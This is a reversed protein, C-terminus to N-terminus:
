QWKIKISTFGKYEEPASYLDRIQINEKSEESLNNFRFGSSSPNLTNADKEKM